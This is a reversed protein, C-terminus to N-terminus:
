YIRLASISSGGNSDVGILSQTLTVNADVGNKAQLVITTAGGVTYLYPGFGSTQQVSISVSAVQACTYLVLIQSGAVAASATSDYFQTAIFTGHNIGVGSTSTFTVLGRVFGFILYTGASPLSLSLGTM